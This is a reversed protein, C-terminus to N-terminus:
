SVASVTTVPTSWCDFRGLGVRSTLFASVALGVPRCERVLEVLQLALQPAVVLQVHVSESVQVEELVVEVPVMLRLQLLQLLVLPLSVPVRLPYPPLLELLHSHQKILQNTPQTTTEATPQNTPQNIPHLPTSTTRIQPPHPILNQHRHTQNTTQKNNTRTTTNATSPAIDPATTTRGHSRVKRRLAPFLVNVLFSSEHVRSTQNVGAGTETPLAAFMAFVFM